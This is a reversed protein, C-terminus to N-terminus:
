KAFAQQKSKKGAKPKGPTSSNQLFYSLRTKWDKLSSFLFVFFVELLLEQVTFKDGTAAAYLDTVGFAVFLGSLCSRDIEDGSCKFEVGWPNFMIEDM